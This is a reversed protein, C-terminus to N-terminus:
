LVDLVLVADGLALELLVDARQLHGLLLLFNTVGLVEVREDLVVVLLLRVDALLVLADRVLDLGLELL